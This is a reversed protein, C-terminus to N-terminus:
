GLWERTAFYGHVQFKTLDAHELSRFKQRKFLPNASDADLGDRTVNRALHGFDGGALAANGAGDWPEEVREWAESCDWCAAHQASVHFRAETGARHAADAASREGASEYGAARRFLELGTTTAWAVTANDAAFALGSGNFNPEVRAGSIEGDPLRSAQAYDATRKCLKGAGSCVWGAENDKDGFKGILANDPLDADMVSAVNLQRVRGPHPLMADTVGSVHSM